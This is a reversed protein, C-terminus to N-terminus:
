LQLAKQVSFRLAAIAALSGEATAAAVAAASATPANAAAAAAAAAAIAIRTCFITAQILGCNSSVVALLV